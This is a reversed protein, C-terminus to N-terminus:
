GGVINPVMLIEDAESWQTRLAARYAQFAARAQQKPMTLTAVTM